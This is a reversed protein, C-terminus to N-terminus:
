GHGYKKFLKMFNWIICYACHLVYFFFFLLLIIVYKKYRNLLRVHKCFLLIICNLNMNYYLEYLAVTWFWIADVPPCLINYVSTLFFMVAQLPCHRQPHHKDILEMLSNHLFQFKEECSRLSFLAVWNIKMFDTM